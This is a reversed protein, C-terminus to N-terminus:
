QVIYLINYRYILLCLERSQQAEATQRPVTANVRHIPRRAAAAACETSTHAAATTQVSRGSTELVKITTIVALLLCQASKLVRLVLATFASGKFRFFGRLANQYIKGFRCSM